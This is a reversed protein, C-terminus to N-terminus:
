IHKSENYIETILPSIIDNNEVLLRAPINNFTTPKRKDLSSIKEKIVSETVNSFNFYEEVKVNEKIKLISPHNKYQHIIYTIDDLETDSPYEDTVFQEINLDEVM